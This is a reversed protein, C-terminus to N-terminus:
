KKPKKAPRSRILKTSTPAKSPEVREISHPIPGAM